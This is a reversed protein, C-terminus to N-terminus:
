LVRVGLKEAMERAEKEYDGYVLAFERGVFKRISEENEIEVWITTRCNEGGLDKCDVVEGKTIVMKDGVGCNILTVQGKPLMCYGTVTGKMTKWKRLIYKCQGITSPAFCHKLTITKRRHSLAEPTFIPKKSVTHLILMPLLNGGRWCGIPYGEEALKALAFCLKAELPKTFQGCWLVYAAKAKMEKMTAKMALYIQACKTVDKFTPELIKSEKMWKKALREAQTMDANRCADLFKEMSINETNLKGAFLPNKQWVIGDLEWKGADFLCIKINDFWKATAIAEIRAKVEETSFVLQVNEHDSLYDYTELANLFTNEQSVITIPKSTEALCILSAFRQLTYPFIIFGDADHNNIKLIDKDKRALCKSEASMGYRELIENIEAYQKDKRKSIIEPETGLLFIPLIRPNKRRLLKV